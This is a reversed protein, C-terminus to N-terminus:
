REELRQFRDSVSARSPAPGEYGYLRVEQPPARSRSPVLGRGFLWRSAGHKGSYALRAIRKHEQPTIQVEAPVLAAPANTMKRAASRM